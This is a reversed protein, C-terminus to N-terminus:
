VPDSINATVQIYVYGEPSDADPPGFGVVKYEFFELFAHDRFYGRLVGELHYLDGAEALQRMSLSLTTTLDFGNKICSEIEDRTLPERYTTM